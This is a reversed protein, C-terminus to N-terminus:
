KLIESVRSWEHKLNKIILLEKYNEAIFLAMWIPSLNQLLKNLMESYYVKYHKRFKGQVYYREFVLVSCEEKIVELKENYTLNNFKNECIDVTGNGKLIKKFSPEPCLAHHIDDHNIKHDVFDDFFEEYTSDFKPTNRKGHKSEWFSFLENFLEPILVCGKEKLFSIDYLHKSRKINWFIHSIKLTYMVNGTIEIGNLAPINHYETGKKNKINETTLYDFDSNSVDRFDPYLEKIKRSGILEM